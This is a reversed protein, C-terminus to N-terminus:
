ILFLKLYKSSFYYYPHHLVGGISCFVSIIGAYILAENLEIRGNFYQLILAIFLPQIIKM